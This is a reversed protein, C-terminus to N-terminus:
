LEILHNSTLGESILVQLTKIQEDTPTHTYIKYQHSWCSILGCNEIMNNYIDNRMDHLQEVSSNYMQAIYNEIYTIHSPIAYEVTGDPLIIIEFYDIFTHKHRNISFPEHLVRVADDSIVKSM